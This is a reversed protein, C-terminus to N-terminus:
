PNPCIICCPISGLTGICNGLANIMGGYWGHASDDESDHKLIQAYSPQLDERRPPQVRVLPDNDRRTSSNSPGGNVELTQKGLAPTFDDSM